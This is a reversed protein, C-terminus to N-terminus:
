DQHPKEMYKRFSRGVKKVRITSWLAVRESMKNIQMSLMKQTIVM